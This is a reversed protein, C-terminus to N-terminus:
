TCFGLHLALSLRAGDWLLRWPYCPCAVGAGCLQLRSDQAIRCISRLNPGGSLIKAPGPCFSDVYKTVKSVGSYPMQSTIRGATQPDRSSVQESPFAYTVSKLRTLTQHRFLYRCSDSNAMGMCRHM